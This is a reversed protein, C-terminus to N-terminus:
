RCSAIAGGITVSRILSLRRIKNIDIAMQQMTGLTRTLKQFVAQIHYFRAWPKGSVM